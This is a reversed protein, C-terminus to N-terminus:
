IAEVILYIITVYRIKSAFNPSLIHVKSLWGILLIVYLPLLLNTLLSITNLGHRSYHLIFYIAYIVLASYYLRRVYKNSSLFTYVVKFARITTQYFSHVKKSM